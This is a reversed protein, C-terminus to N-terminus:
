PEWGISKIGFLGKEFKPQRLPTKICDSVRDAVSDWSYTTEALSKGAQRINECLTAEQKLYVTKTVLEDFSRYLVVNEMDKFGLACNEKEGQDWACLVCGAAMAEFNKVMYEGLEKDASIFFKIRNLMNNYEEGPSTKLMKLDIVKSIEELLNKRGSYVRSQVGGIFGFEIDRDTNRDNITRNCYGKSVFHADFGEDLLRAAVNKGSVIIRAWPMRGYHKSFLGKYKWGDIYNQCADHELIVLNPITQIFKYQKIEKKFRLFLIIRDYQSVDVNKKLFAKLNAQNDSSLRLLDCDGLRSVLAAYFHDLLIKQDDQVLLLFKM